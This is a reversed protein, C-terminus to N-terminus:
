KSKVTAFFEPCMPNTKKGNKEDETLVDGSLLEFCRSQDATIENVMTELRVVDEVAVAAVGVEEGKKNIKLKSVKKKAVVPAKRSETIKADANERISDRLALDAKIIKLEEAQGKIVLDKQAIIAAKEQLQAQVHEHYYWGGYGMIAMIVLLVLIIKTQIFM